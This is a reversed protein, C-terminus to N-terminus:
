LFLLLSLQEIKDLEKHGLSQLGDPEETWPTRCALISPHTAKGEEPARGRGLCGVWTEQMTPLNKVM